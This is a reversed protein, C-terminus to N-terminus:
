APRYALHVVGGEFSKSTALQLPTREAGDFLRRGSGVVIPYVLLHLEDLVGKRLLSRVLTPSGSVLIDGGAQEKLGAVEDMGIVTSNNWDAKDLTTSVVYKPTNNMYDAGPDDAAARSPWAAAFEDYTVRGLLLTDTSSMQGGVVEAIADGPYDFSWKAPSEVVGDLTTFLTAIIKRM